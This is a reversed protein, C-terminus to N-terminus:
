TSPPNHIRRVGKAFLLLPIFCVLSMVLIVSIDVTDLPASTLVPQLLLLVILAVFLMSIALLLGLGIAYGSEKRRWLQVGGAIWLPSILLDSFNVAVDARPVAVLGSLANSLVAIARLFFLVGLATLVAGVTREHVLGALSKRLVDGDIGAVLDLLARASLIVLGLHVPFAAGVPLAIVYAAYSYLLFILAGPWCLLGILRGRRALWMSGLLLPLGVLLNVADNAVFATLLDETPYIEARFVLGAVSAVIILIATVSSLIYMSRLDRNVPLNSSSERSM